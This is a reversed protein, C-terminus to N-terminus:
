LNEEILDNIFKIDSEDYTGLMLNTAVRISEETYDYDDKLMICLALIIKENITMSNIKEKLHHIITSDVIRKMTENM